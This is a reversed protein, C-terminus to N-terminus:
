RLLSSSVLFRSSNEEQYQIFPFDIAPQQQRLFEQGPRGAPIPAPLARVGWIGGFPRRREGNAHNVDIMAKADRSQCRSFVRYYV